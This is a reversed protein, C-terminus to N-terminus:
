AAKKIEKILLKYEKDGINKIMRVKMENCEDIEKLGDKLLNASEGVVLWGLFHEMNELGIADRMLRLSIENSLMYMFLSDFHNLCNLWDDSSTLGSYHERVIELKDDLRDPINFGDRKLLKSHCAAKMYNISKSGNLYYSAMKEIETLLTKIEGEEPTRILPQIVPNIAKRVLEVSYGTLDAIEDHSKKMADLMVAHGFFIDPWKQMSDRLGDTYYEDVPKLDIPFIEKPSSLEKLAERLSLDAVRKTNEADIAPYANALRMYNQATRESVECNDKLFILWEGHKVIAKAENLSKGCEIGWVVAKKASDQANRDAENIRESLILLENKIIESKM